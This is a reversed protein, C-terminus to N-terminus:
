APVDRGWTIRNLASLMTKDNAMAVLYSILHPQDGYLACFRMGALVEDVAEELHGAEAKLLSDVAVLRVGQIMKVLRAPEDKSDLKDWDESRCCPKAAAELILDIVMRHDQTLADLKKWDEDDLPYWSITDTAKSLLMKDSEELLILEAAAKWLPAANDRDACPVDFAHRGLPKGQAKREALYDDLKKGTTFNFVARVGLALVIIVFLVLGVRTLIKKVRINM